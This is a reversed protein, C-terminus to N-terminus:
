EDKEKWYLPVEEAEVLLDNAQDMTYKKQIAYILLADRRIRAYLTSLGALLLLHNMENLTAQLCLGIRLVINRGPSKQGNLIHYFYSRDICTARIMDKPSLGRRQMMEFLTESFIPQTATRHYETAEEFTQANRILTLLQSTTIGKM